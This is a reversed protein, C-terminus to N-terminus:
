ANSREPLAFGVQFFHDSLTSLRFSKRHWTPPFPYAALGEIEDYRHGHTAGTGLQRLFCYGGAGVAGFLELYARVDEVPMEQFGAINVVYDFTSERFHRLGQPGFFWIGETVDPRGILRLNRTKDYTHTSGPPLLGPLYSQSVILVEPLDFLCYTSRPNVFRIVYGLRGWGAGLEAVTVSDTAIRPDLDYLSYFDDISMLLDLSVFRGDIKYGFGPGERCTAPVRQLLELTDRQKLLSWYMWCAYRHLRADALALGSFWVNFHQEEPNRIGETRFVEEFSRIVDQWLRGPRFPPGLAAADERMLDLQRMQLESLLFPRRSGDGRLRRRLARLVDAPSTDLLRVLQKRLSV